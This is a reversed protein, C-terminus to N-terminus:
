LENKWPKHTRPYQMAGNSMAASIDQKTRMIQTRAGIANAAHAQHIQPLADSKRNNRENVSAVVFVAEIFKKSPVFISCCRMRRATYGRNHTILRRQTAVKRFKM